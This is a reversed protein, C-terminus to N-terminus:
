EPTNIHGEPYSLITKGYGGTAFFSSTYSREDDQAVVICAVFEMPASAYGGGTTNNM